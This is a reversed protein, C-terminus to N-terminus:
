RTITVTDPVLFADPFRKQVAALAEGAEARGAFAGLRVRYYPQKWEVDVTLDGEAALSPPRQAAAGQRWWALAATVKEDAAPKETTTFIQIRFGQVTRMEPERAESGERATSAPGSCATLFLLSLLLVGYTRGRRNAITLM